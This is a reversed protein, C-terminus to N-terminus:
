FEFYVFCAAVVLINEALHAQFHTKSFSNKGFIERIHMTFPGVLNSISTKKRFGLFQDFYVAKSFSLM